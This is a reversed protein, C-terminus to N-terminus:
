NGSFYIGGTTCRRTYEFSHSEKGLNSEFSRCYLKLQERLHSNLKKKRNKFGLVHFAVENSHNIETERYDKFVYVIVWHILLQQM